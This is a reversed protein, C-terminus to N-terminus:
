DVIDYNNIKVPELCNKAKKLIKDLNTIIEQQIKNPLKEKEVILDCVSVNVIAYDGTNQPNFFLVAIENANESVVIGHIDKQLNNEIYPKENILKVLDLKKM